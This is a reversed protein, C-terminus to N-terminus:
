KRGMIQPLFVLAAAGAALLVWNKEIWAAIDTQDASNSSENGGAGSNLADSGTFNVIKDADVSSGTPPPRLVNTGPVVNPPRYQPAVQDLVNYGPGSVIVTPKVYGPPPAPAGPVPEISGQDVLTHYDTLNSWYWATYEQVLRSLLAPINVGACAGPYFACYTEVTARLIGLIEEPRASLGARLSYVGRTRLNLDDRLKAELGAVSTSGAFGPISTEVMTVIGPDVASVPQQYSGSVAGCAAANCDVMNGTQSDRCWTTDPIPECYGLGGVGYQSRTAIRM